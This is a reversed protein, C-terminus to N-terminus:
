YGFVNNGVRIRERPEEGEHKRRIEILNLVDYGKRHLFAIMADNNPHVYNYLTDEGYSAALQQAADFLASAAGKRRHTSLVYLSEVWVVSGDIRCVLYGLIEGAEEFVFIPFGAAAYEEVEAKAAGADEASQVGKYGKLEVRFKAVLAAVGDIDAAVARRVGTAGAMPEKDLCIDDLERMDAGVAKPAESEYKEGM